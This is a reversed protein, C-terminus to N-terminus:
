YRVLRFGLFQDRISPAYGSRSASQLLTRDNGWSGGRIVKDTGTKIGAPNTVSGTPYDGYWDQVWEWVNGHMDYLGWDNPQKTAAEHTKSGSNKDYWAYNGLLTENDGFSYKATSNARAAYEWEAETPLRYKGDGRDNLKKIFAQVDEWSVNEVPCNDCSNFSSPNNFMVSVWQTQTVETTGLYFSQSLTVPHSDGTEGQQFTGAPINAFKMGLKNSILNRASVPSNLAPLMVVASSELRKIVAKASEANQGAPFRNLFDNFDAINTGNKISNWWTQEWKIKAQATYIGNPFNSVFLKFDNRNISNKIKNWAESEAANPDTEANEVFYFDGKISYSVWPEQKDMSLNAVNEAVRKFMTEILVNPKKIEILLQSTYLGNRTIGDSATNGPQTAYAVMTGSPAKIQALGDNGISRWNRKFPNDRCADLIVINFRNKATSMAGLVYNIDVGELDVEAENNIDANTPILYNRGDVQVGHGAYYFLGVGGNGLKQGFENIKERMETKTKLNVGYIVEFGLSELAAKMDAADNQPNVLPKTKYDSNGVVLALRKEVTTKVGVGRTEQGFIILAFLLGLTLVFITKGTIRILNRKNISCM